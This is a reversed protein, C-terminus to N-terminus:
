KAIILGNFVYDETNVSLIYKGSKPSGLSIMSNGDLFGAVGQIVIRGSLDTLRFPFSGNLGSISITIRNSAPNPYIRMSVDPILVESLFSIPNQSLVLNDMFIVGGGSFATEGSKYKFGTFHYDRGDEPLELKCERFQWGAFDIKTMLVEYEAGDREFLLILQNDSLDGWIYMGAYQGNRVSFLTAGPRAVVHAEDSDFGYLLRYSYSGFLRSTGFRLIRNRTGPIINKSNLTDIAWTAASEEFDLVVQSTSEFVPAVRFVVEIDEFLLLGEEDELESDLKLIYNDGPKLNSLNFVYSGVNGAFTNLEVGSRSVVNGDADEVRIRSTLNENKLRGDFHIRVQTNPYVNDMGNKPYMNLISLRNKLATSFSFTFDEEMALDGIHKVSKLLTVTYLTATELPNLPVFRATRDQDEYVFTGEVEPEISFAAEFSERDVEFNFNFVIASAASVREDPEAKPAYNEVKMPDSRDQNLYCLYYTVKNSDVVISDALLPEYKEAEFYLQYVGPELNDFLYFGNNLNDVQYVLNGPQLTVKTGNVPLWQDKSNQIFPYDTVKRYIDKVYGAIKGKPDVGGHYYELFAKYFHWAELNKYERNMLRYTEPIYDHFSGESILGPVTLPRLVGYGNWNEPAFSKDGRVNRNTFTWHTTQNSFINDWFLQAVEMSQPLIPNNDWGHFLMLVYNTYSNFANSHISIMFDVQNANAEEAIASLPRDDITRNQVRSMIVQAGASELLSRLHIGKDLNSKSEWFGATDGLAFHPTPVNRDDSDFGGHGPNIYIKVGELNQALIPASFLFLSMFVLIVRKM